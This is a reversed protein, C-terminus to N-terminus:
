SLKSAHWLLVLVKTIERGSDSDMVEIYACKACVNNDHYFSQM